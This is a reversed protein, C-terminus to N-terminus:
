EHAAEASEDQKPAPGFLDCAVIELTQWSIGWNADHIQEVQQLVDWAQDKTLDPRVQLVDEISWIAAIQRNERLLTHIERYYDRTM